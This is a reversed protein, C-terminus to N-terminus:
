SSIAFKLSLNPISDPEERTAPQTITKGSRMGTHRAKCLLVTLRPGTFPRSQGHGRSLQSETPM